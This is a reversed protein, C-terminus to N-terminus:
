SFEIDEKKAAALRLGKIFQIIPTRADAEPADSLLPLLEELREALPMCDKAAISGEWDSHNLLVHIIDPELSTWEIPEGEKKAYYGEMQELPIGIVRAIEFRLANFSSYPANFCGHSVTLGM